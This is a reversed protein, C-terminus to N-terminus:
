QSRLSAIWRAAYRIAPNSRDSREECHRPYVHTVLIRVRAYLVIVAIWHSIM